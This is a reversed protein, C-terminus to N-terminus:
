IREEFEPCRYIVLELADDNVKRVTRSLEQDLTKIILCFERNRCQPCAGTEQPSIKIIVM